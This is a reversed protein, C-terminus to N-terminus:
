KLTRSSILYYKECSIDFECCIIMFRINSQIDYDYTNSCFRKTLNDRLKIYLESLVTFDLSIYKFMPVLLTYHAAYECDTCYPALEIENWCCAGM